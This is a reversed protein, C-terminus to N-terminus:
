ESLVWPCRVKEIKLGNPLVSGSIVEGVPDPLQAVDRLGEAMNFVREQTLTLRDLLAKSIGKEIANDTDQKNAALIGPVNEKLKEAMAQLVQARKGSNLLQWDKVAEAALRSKNVIEM